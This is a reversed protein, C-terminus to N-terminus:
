FLFMKFRSFITLESQKSGKILSTERKQRQKTEDVDEGILSMKIFGPHLQYISPLLCTIM